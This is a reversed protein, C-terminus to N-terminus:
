ITTLTVQGINCTIICCICLETVSLQNVKMMSFGSKNYVHFLIVQTTFFWHLILVHFQVKMGISLASDLFFSGMDIM